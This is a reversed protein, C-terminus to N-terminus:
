IVEAIVAGHVCSVFCADKNIVLMHYHPGVGLHSTMYSEHLSKFVITFLLTQSLFLKLTMKQACYVTHMKAVHLYLMLANVFM